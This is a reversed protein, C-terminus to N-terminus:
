CPLMVLRIKDKKNNKVMDTYRDGIYIHKDM